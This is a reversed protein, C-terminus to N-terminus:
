RCKLILKGVTKRSALEYLACNVDELKYNGGILPVIKKKGALEMGEHLHERLREEAKTGFYKLVNLGFVGNNRNMLLMPSFRLSKVFATLGGIRSGKGEKMIDALGFLVVRGSPVLCSFNRILNRGGIPDLICDAGRGGTIKHVEARFDKERYNIVFDAGAEKATKFKGNSGVTAIAKAGHSKAIQLALRGVGGAGGHVLVWDGERVRCMDVLAIAATVYNVPISAAEEFSLSKPIPIAQEDELIIEDTYGGFYTLSAVHDGKKFRSGKGAERVVGAIEYGPIAPLAPADPYMGHSMLVDAFNIGAAHVDVIIDKGKLKGLTKEELTFVPRKGTKHLVMAKGM